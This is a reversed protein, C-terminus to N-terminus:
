LTVGFHANAYKNVEDRLELEGIDHMMKQCVAMAKGFEITFEHEDPLEDYSYSLPSLVIEGHLTITQRVHGAEYAVARRFMRPNDYKEQANFCLTLLSM